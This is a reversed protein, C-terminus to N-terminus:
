CRLVRKACKHYRGVWTLATYPTPHLGDKLSKVLPVIKGNNKRHMCVSDLSVTPIYRGYNYNHINQNLDALAQFITNGSARLHEETFDSQTVYGKSKQYWSYKLLNILPVTCVVVTPDCFSSEIYETLRRLKRLITTSDVNTNRVLESEGNRNRHFRTFENIGVSLFVLLQRGDCQRSGRLDDVLDYIDDIRAGSKYKFVTEYPLILHSAHHQREVERIRSDGLIIM